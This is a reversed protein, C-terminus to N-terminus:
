VEEIEVEFDYRAHDEFGDYIDDYYLGFELSVGITMTGDEETEVSDFENRSAKITFEIDGDVFKAAESYCDHSHILDRAMDAITTELDNDVLYDAVIDNDVLDKFESLFSFVDDVLENFDFVRYKRMM